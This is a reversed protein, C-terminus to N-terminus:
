KRLIPTPKRITSTGFIRGVKGKCLPVALRVGIASPGLKTIWGISGNVWRREADTCLLMVQAGAKLHLKFDTPYTKCDFFGTVIATYIQEQSPIAILRLLNIHAVRNSYGVLRFYSDGEQPDLVPKCRDNLLTLDPANQQGICVRNIAEILAPDRQRHIHDLKVPEAPPAPPVTPVPATPQAMHTSAQKATSKGRRRWLWWVLFAVGAFLLYPGVFAVLYSPM